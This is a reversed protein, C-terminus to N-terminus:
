KINSDMISCPSCFILCIATEKLQKSIRDRAAIAASRSTTRINQPHNDRTIKGVNQTEQSSDESTIELLYLHNIARSVINKNPLQIKASRTLGDKSFILEALRWVRRPTHDDRVIVM